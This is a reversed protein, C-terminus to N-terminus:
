EASANPTGGSLINSAQQQQQQDHQDHHQVNNRRRLKAALAARVVGNVQSDPSTTSREHSLTRTGSNPASPVLLSMISNQLPNAGQMLNSSRAVESVTSVVINMMSMRQAPGSQPALRSRILPGLADCLQALSALVKSYGYVTADVFIFTRSHTANDYKSFANGVAFAVPLTGVLLLTTSSIMQWACVGFANVLAYFVNSLGTGYVM